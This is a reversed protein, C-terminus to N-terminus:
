VGHYAAYALLVVTVGAALVQAAHHLGKTQKSSAIFCWGIFTLAAWAAYLAGM